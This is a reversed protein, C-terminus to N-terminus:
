SYVTLHSTVVGDLNFAQRAETLLVMRMGNLNSHLSEGGGWSGLNGIRPTMGLRATSSERIALSVDRM